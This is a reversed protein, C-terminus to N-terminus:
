VRFTEWPISKIHWQLLLETTLKTRGIVNSYLQTSFPLTMGCRIEASQCKNRMHWPILDVLASIIESPLLIESSLASQHIEPAKWQWPAALSPPTPLSSSSLFDYVKKQWFGIPISVWEMDIRFEPSVSLSRCFTEIWHVSNICVFYPM